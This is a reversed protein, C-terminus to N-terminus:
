LLLSQCALLDYQRNCQSSDICPQWVTGCRSRPNSWQTERPPSGIDPEVLTRQTSRVQPRINGSNLASARLIRCFHPNACRGEACTRCIRASISVVARVEAACQAYYRECNDETADRAWGEATNFAIVRVAKNFQGETIQRIVDGRNAEVEDVERYVSCTELEDVVLYTDFKFDPALSPTQRRM